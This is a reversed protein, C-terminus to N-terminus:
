KRSFRADDHYCIRCVTGGWRCADHNNIFFASSQVTMTTFGGWMLNHSHNAAPWTPQSDTQIPPPGSVYALTFLVHALLNTQNGPQEKSYQMWVFHIRHCEICLTTSKADWKFFTNNSFFWWGVPHKWYKCSTDLIYRYIIDSDKYYIMIALLNKIERGEDPIFHIQTYVFAFVWKVKAHPCDVSQCHTCGDDLSTHVTHRTCASPHCWSPLVSFHSFLPLAPLIFPPGQRRDATMVLRGTPEHNLEHNGMCKVPLIPTQKWAFSAHINILSARPRWTFRTQAPEKVAQWEYQHLSLAASWEFVFGFYGLCLSQGNNLQTQRYGATCDCM